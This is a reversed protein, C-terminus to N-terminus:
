DRLGQDREMREVQQPPRRKNAKRMREFAANRQERTSKGDILELYALLNDQEIQEVDETTPDTIM